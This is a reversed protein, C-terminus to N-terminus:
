FLTKGFFVSVLLCSVENPLASINILIDYM